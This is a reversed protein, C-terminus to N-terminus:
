VDEVGLIKRLKKQDAKVRRLSAEVQKKKQLQAELAPLNAASIYKGVVRGNEKYQLYHYVRGYITKKSIYGRPYDKLANKYAIEQRDLRDLEEKLVEMLISM